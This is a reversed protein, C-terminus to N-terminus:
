DTKAHARKYLGIFWIVEGKVTSQVTRALTRRTATTKFVEQWSSTWVIKDPDKVLRAAEMLRIDVQVAFLEPTAHYWGANVVLRPQTDPGDTRNSLLPLTPLM